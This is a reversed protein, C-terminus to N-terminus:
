KSGWPYLEPWSKTPLGLPMFGSRLQRAACFKPSGHEVILPGLSSYAGAQFADGLWGRGALLESCNGIDNQPAYLTYSVCVAANHIHSWLIM